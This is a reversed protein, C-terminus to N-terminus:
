HRRLLNPNTEYQHCSFRQSNKMRWFAQLPSFIVCSDPESSTLSLYHKKKRFAEAQLQMDWVQDKDSYWDWRLCRLREWWSCGCKKLFIPSKCIKPIKKAEAGWSQTRHNLVSDECKCGFLGVVAAHMCTSNSHDISYFRKVHQKIWLRYITNWLEQHQSIVSVCMKLVHQKLVVQPGFFEIDKCHRFATYHWGALLDLISLWIFTRCLLGMFWYALFGQIDKM